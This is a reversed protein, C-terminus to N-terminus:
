RVVIRLKERCGVFLNALLRKIINEAHDLVYNIVDDFNDDDDDDGDDDCLLLLLLLLLLLMMIIIM